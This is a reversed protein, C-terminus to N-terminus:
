VSILKRRSAIEGETHNRFNQRFEAQGGNELLKKKRGFVKLFSALNELDFNEWFALNGLFSQKGFEGRTGVLARLGKEELFSEFFRFTKWIVGRSVACIASKKAKERWVIIKEHFKFSECQLGVGGWGKQSFVKQIGGWIRGSIM